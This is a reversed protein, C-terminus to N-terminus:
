LEEKRLFLNGQGLNERPNRISSPNLLWEEYRDKTLAISGKRSPSFPFCPAFLRRFYLLRTPLGDRSKGAGGEVLVSHRLLAVHIREANATLEGAGEVEIRLREDAEAKPPTKLLYERLVEGVKLAFEHIIPGDDAIQRLDSLQRHAFQKVVTDQDKPSIMTLDGEWRGRTIVHLLEIIFSVDGSCLKVLLSFGYFRATGPRDLSMIYRGFRRERDHEGLMNKLVNLSGKGVEFFRAALIEEFFHKCDEERARFYIEGLNVRTLERGEKYKRGLHDRLPPGTGESSVKVRLDEILRFLVPNYSLQAFSPVVTASYDDILFWVEKGNGIKTRSIARALSELVDDRALDWPEYTLGTKLSSLSSVRRELLEVIDPLGAKGGGRRVEEPILRSIAEAITSCDNEALDALEETELWEFVRAVELAFHASLYERCFEEALSEDTSELKKYASRLFPTRLEGCSVLFALQPLRRLRVRVAEPDLEAKLPRAQTQLSFYRLLMTKGCGRPGIVVVSESKKLQAEWKLTDRFLFLVDEPALALANSNELPETISVKARQRMEQFSPFRSGISATASVSRVEEVIGAPTLNRRSVNPDALRHAVHRMKKAFARDGPSLQGLNAEEFKAVLAYIHKALYWYDGRGSPEPTGGDYVRASGFDILKAEYRDPLNEDAGVERILVNDDHADNHWFNRSHMRNLGSAIGCVIDTVDGRGFVECPEDLFERLPRANAIFEFILALVPVELNFAHVSAERLGYFRAINRHAACAALARAESEPMRDVPLRHAPIVKLAFRQFPDVAEFTWGFFGRGLVRQLRYEGLDQELLQTGIDLPRGCGPCTDTAKSSKGECFFCGYDKSSM